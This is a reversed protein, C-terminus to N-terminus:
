DPGTNAFLYRKTNLLTLHQGGREGSLTLTSDPKQHGWAQTFFVYRKQMRVHGKSQGLMSGSPPLAPLVEGPEVCFPVKNRLCRVRIFRHQPWHSRM